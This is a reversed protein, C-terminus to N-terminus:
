LAARRNLSSAAPSPPALSFRCAWNVLYVVPYPYAPLRMSCRALWAPPSNPPYRAGWRAGRVRPNPPSIGSTTRLLIVNPKKKGDVGSVFFVAFVVFVFTTKATKDQPPLDSRLSSSRM